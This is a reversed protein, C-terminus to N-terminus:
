RVRKPISPIVVRAMWLSVFFFVLFIPYWIPIRVQLFYYAFFSYGNPGDQMFLLTFPIIGFFFSAISFLTLLLIGRGSLVRVSSPYLVAFAASPVLSAFLFLIFTVPGSLTTIRQSRQMVADAVILLIFLIVAYLLFRKRSM